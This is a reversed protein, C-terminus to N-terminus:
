RKFAFSFSDIFERILPNQQNVFEEKRGVFEIRGGHLFAIRDAVYFACHLDHTVVVSTIKLKDHLDKILFDIKRATPPDIGTTPEDYIIIQPRLIIARAIAVRKKMGGSLEQPFLEEVGELGVLRLVKRVKKEINDPSIEMPIGPLINRYEYMLFGVNERVNLFDFLANEQFVIGFHLRMKNLQNESLKTIDVNNVVVRGEDPKLLGVLHKLLVTKGQGSSGLIVLTESDKVELNINDLVKKEGFSKQLNDVRIM